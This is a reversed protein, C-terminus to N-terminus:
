FANASENNEKSKFTIVYRLLHFSVLSLKSWMWFGKLDKLDKLHM